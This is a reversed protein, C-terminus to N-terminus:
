VLASLLEEIHEQEEDREITAGEFYQECAEVVVGTTDTWTNTLQVIMQVPWIMLQVPFEEATM